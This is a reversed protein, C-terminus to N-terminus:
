AQWADECLLVGIHVGDLRCECARLGPKFYRDEDFVDYGPLLQKDAVAQVVGDRCVFASNAYGGHELRRPAGVITCCAGTEAAIRQVAQECAEVFGDRLLLDRPPYGCVALEPCLLIDAGDARAEALAALLGAVNGDIDGIVPDLHALAIRM